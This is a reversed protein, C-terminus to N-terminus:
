LPTHHSAGGCGCQLSPHEAIPSLLAVGADCSGQLEATPGSVQLAALESFGLPLGFPQTPPPEPGEWKGFGGGGVQIQQHLIQHHQEQQYLFHQQQTKELTREDMHGGYMKQLQECEQLLGQQPEARGPLVSGSLLPPLLGPRPSPCGPSGVLVAWQVAPGSAAVARGVRGM